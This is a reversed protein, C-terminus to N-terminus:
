QRQVSREGAAVRRSGLAVGLDGLQLLLQPPAVSRAARRLPLQTLRALLAVGQAQLAVGQAELVVGHVAPQAGLM